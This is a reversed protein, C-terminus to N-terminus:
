SVDAPDDTHRRRLRDRLEVWPIANGTREVEDAIAEDIAPDPDIFRFPAEAIARDLISMVYATVDLDLTTAAAGLLAARDADIHIDFGDAM